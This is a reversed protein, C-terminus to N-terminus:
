DAKSDLLRGEQDFKLGALDLIGKVLYAFAQSDFNEDPHTTALIKDPGPENYHCAVAAREILDDFTRCPKAWVVKTAAYFLQYAKAFEADTRGENLLRATEDLFNTIARHWDSALYNARVYRIGNRGRRYTAVPATTVWLDALQRVADLLHAIASDDCVPPSGDRVLEEPDLFVLPRRTGDGTFDDTQNSYHEAIAGRIFVQILADHISTPRTTWIRQVCADLRDGAADVAADAAEQRPDDLYSPLAEIAWFKEGELTLWERGMPTEQWRTPPANTATGLNAAIVAALEDKTPSQPKSNILDIIADAIQNTSLM